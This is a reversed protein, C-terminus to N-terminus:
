AHIEYERGIILCKSNHGHGVEQTKAVPLDPKNIINTILSIIESLPKEKELSTFTGLLVGSVQSFANMQKLQNFYASIQETGGGMSELFLIKEKFDPLYPTGSLKLFCRINGGIITGKMEKGQIFRWNVNYIDNQGNLVSNKFREKQIESNEWILNKLQYLYSCNGTKTYIANIITTLDSYGWFPKPYANILNYDLYELLSNAIDGGSIDFIAKISNDAYFELLEEAKAKATEIYITNEAFIYKSMLPLLGLDKLTDSLQKIKEKHNNTLPNSCAVLAIKDNKCLMNIM